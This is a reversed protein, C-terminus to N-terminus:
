ERKWGKEKCIRALAKDPNVAIATGVAELFPIDLSSDSYGTIQSRTAGLRDALAVVYCAKEEGSMYKICGWINGCADVGYETAAWSDVGLRRAIPGVLFDPSNSVIATFHGNAKGAFLQEYIEPNLMNELNEDLFREVHGNVEALPSGFFFRSGAQRHLTEATILRCVHCAYCAALYLMTWFSLLGHKYLYIGFRFSTNVRCLTCDLDFLSICSM